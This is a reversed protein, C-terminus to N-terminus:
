EGPTKDMKLIDTSIWAHLNLLSPTKGGEKMESALKNVFLDADGLGIGHGYFKGNGLYIVNEGQWGRKYADETVDWNEFYYYFGPELKHDKDLDTEYHKSADPRSTIYVRDLDREMKWPGMKIDKAVTDFDAPGLLDLMAVYYTAVMGTACEFGYKHGNQVMDNVADSAKVGPKLKLVGGSGITWFDPNAKHNKILEFGVGADDMAYSAKVISNAVTGRDALKKTIKSVSVEGNADTSFVVDGADLKGNHNADFLTNDHDLLEEVITGFHDVHQDQSGLKALLHGAAASDMKGITAPLASILAADTKKSGFHGKLTTAITDLETKTLAGDAAASEIQRTAIAGRLAQKGTSDLKKSHTDLLEFLKEETAQDGLENLAADVHTATVSKNKAAAWEDEFTNTAAPAAVDAADAATTSGAGAYAAWLAARAEARDAESLDAIDLAAAAELLATMDADTPTAAAAATPAGVLAGVVQTGLLVASVAPSYRSVLSAKDDARSRPLEPAPAEPNKLVKPEKSADSAGSLKPDFSLPAPSGAGHVRRV